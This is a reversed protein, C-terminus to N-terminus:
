EAMRSAVGELLQDRLDSDFASLVDSTQVSALVDGERLYVLDLYVTASLGEGERSAVEVVV